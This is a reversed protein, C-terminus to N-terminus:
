GVAVAEVLPSAMALRIREIMLKSPIPETRPMM